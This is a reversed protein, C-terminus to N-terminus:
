SVMTPSPASSSDSESSIFPSCSGGCVAHRPMGAWATPQHRSRGSWQSEDVAATGGSRAASFGNRGKQTSTRSMEIDTIDASTLIQLQIPTHKSGGCKVHLGTSVLETWSPTVHSMVTGGHSVVHCVAASIEAEAQPAVKRAGSGSEVKQGSVGVLVNRSRMRVDFRGVRCHRGDEPTSSTPKQVELVARGEFNLASLDVDLHDGGILVTFYSCHCCWESASPDTDDARMWFSIIAPEGIGAQACRGIESRTCTKVENVRHHVSM